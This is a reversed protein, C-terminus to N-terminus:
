EEPVAKLVDGAPSPQTDEKKLIIKVEPMRYDFWLFTTKYGEREIRLKSRRTQDVRGPTKGGMIMTAGVYLRALFQGNTNSLFIIRQNYCHAFSRDPEVSFKVGTLPVEKGDTEEVVTGRFDLSAAGDGHGTGDFPEAKFPEAKFTYIDPNDRVVVVEDKAAAMGVLSVAFLFIAMTKM